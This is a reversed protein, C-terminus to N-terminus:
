KSIGTKLTAAKNRLPRNLLKGWVFRKVGFFQPIVVLSCHLAYIMAMDRNLKKHEVFWQTRFLFPYFLLVLGPFFLLLFLPHVTSLGLGALTFGIFGGGRASIRFLEHIWFGSVSLGWRTTVAAYGYGTRHGRKWYQGLRMMALDHGCMPVDLQLIQWDKQRIRQSLEPDEGAVLIEDYGGTDELIPRRIMVDGGFADCPGPKGNWELNGIWNFVSAEPHLEYRNGRVAGISNNELLADVAIDIWQPEVMADSDLFQVLPSGGAKWGHNRGLGPTPFQPDLAIVTVGDFSRASSISNDTSGGDVYYIHIKGRSYHSALLHEICQEITKETNIGIIVCDIDM